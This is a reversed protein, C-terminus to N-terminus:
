WFCAKIWVQASAENWNKVASGIIQLEKPSQVHRGKMEERSTIWRDDDVNVFMEVTEARLGVFHVSVVSM